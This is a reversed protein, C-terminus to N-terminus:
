CKGAVATQLASASNKVQAVSSAVATAATVPPQGTVSKIATSLSSLASQLATIQPAFTSKAESAFTSANTQVSTLATQLSSLGNQRVNVNGLDSVSTKLNAAATCYAPKSSSCGAALGSLVLILVAAQLLLWRRTGHPYATRM